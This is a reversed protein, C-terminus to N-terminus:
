KGSMELVRAYEEYFKGRTIGIGRKVCFKYVESPKDVENAYLIWIDLYREDSKYADDDKFKRTTEELLEILGSNPDSPPYAQLTWQIFSNYVALPDELCHSTTLQSLFQQRQCELGSTSM